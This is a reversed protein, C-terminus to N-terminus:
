LGFWLANLLAHRPDPKTTLPFPNEHAQFPNVFVGDILTLGSLYNVFLRSATDKEETSPPSRKDLINKGAYKLLELGPTHKNVLAWLQASEVSRSNGGRDAFGAVVRHVLHTVDQM